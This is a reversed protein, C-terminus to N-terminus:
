ASRTLQAFSREMPIGAIKALKIVGRAAAMRVAGIFASYLCDGDGPVDYVNGAHEFGFHFGDHLIRIHITNQDHQLEPLGFYQVPAVDVATSIITGAIRLNTEGALFHLEEVGGWGHHTIELRRSRQLLGIGVRQRVNLREDDNTLIDENSHMQTWFDASQTRNYLLCRLVYGEDVNHTPTTDYGHHTSTSNWASSIDSPGGNEMYTSVSPFDSLAENLSLPDGIFASLDHDNSSEGPVFIAITIYLVYFLQLYAQVCLFMVERRRNLITIPIHPEHVYVSLSLIIM